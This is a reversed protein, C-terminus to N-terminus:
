PDDFFLLAHRYEPRAFHGLDRKSVGMIAIDSFIASPPPPSNFPNSASGISANWPFDLFNSNYRPALLFLGRPRFRRQFFFFSFVQANQSSNANFAAKRERCLLFFVPRLFFRCRRRVLHPLSFRAHALPPPKKIVQYGIVMRPLKRARQRPLVGAALRGRDPPLFFTRCNRALLFWNAPLPKLNRLPVDPRRSCAVPKL